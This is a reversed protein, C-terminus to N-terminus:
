FVCGVLWVILWGILVCLWGVLCDVLWVILWGFLRLISLVRSSGWTWPGIPWPAARPDASRPQVAAPARLAEAVSDRHASAGGGGCARRDECIGLGDIRRIPSNSSQRKNGVMSFMSITTTALLKTLCQIPEVPKNKKQM